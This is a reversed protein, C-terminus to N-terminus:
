VDKIWEICYIGREHNQPAESYEIEDTCKSYLLTKVGGCARNKHKCDSCGLIKGCHLNSWLKFKNKWKTLEQKSM